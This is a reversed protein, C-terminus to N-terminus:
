VPNRTQGWGESYPLTYFAIRWLLWDGLIIALMIISLGILWPSAAASTSM